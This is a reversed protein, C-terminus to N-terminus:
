TPRTTRPATRSTSTTDPSRGARARPPPPRTPTFLAGVNVQAPLTLVAVPGAGSAVAPMTVKVPTSPPSTLLVNDRAGVFYYVDTPGETSQPANNDTYSTASRAGTGIEV